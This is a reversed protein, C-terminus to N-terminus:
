EFINYVTCEDQSLVSELTTIVTQILFYIHIICKELTSVYLVDSNLISQLITNGSKAICMM